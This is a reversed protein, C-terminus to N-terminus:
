MFHIELKLINLYRRLVYIKSKILAILLKLPLTNLRYKEFFNKHEKVTVYIYKNIAYSVTCGQYRNYFYPMDTGGGTFSIRLPTRTTVSKYENM